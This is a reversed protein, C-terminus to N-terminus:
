SFQTKEIHHNADHINQNNIALQLSKPHGGVRKQITHTHDDNKAIKICPPAALMIRRHTCAPFFCSLNQCPPAVLNICNLIPKTPPCPAQGPKLNAPQQLKLSKEHQIQQTQEPKCVCPSDMSWNPTCLSLRNHCTHAQAHEHKKELPKENRTSLRIKGAAM